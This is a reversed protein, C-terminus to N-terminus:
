SYLCQALIKSAMKRGVDGLAQSDLLQQIIREELHMAKLFAISAQPEESLKQLLIEIAFNRDLTILAKTAKYGLVFALEEDTYSRIEEARNAIQLAAAEEKYAAVLLPTEQKLTADLISLWKAKEETLKQTNAASAYEDNFGFIFTASSLNLLTFVLFSKFAQMNPSLGQAPMNRDIALYIGAGLLSKCFKAVQMKFGADPYKAEKHNKIGEAIAALAPEDKELAIKLAKADEIMGNDAWTEIGKNLVGYLAIAPGYIISATRLDKGLIEAINNKNETIGTLVAYKGVLRMCVGFLRVVSDAQFIGTRPLGYFYSNDPRTTAMTIELEAKQKELATLNLAPNNLLAQANNAIDWAIQEHDARETLAWYSMLRTIFSMEAMFPLAKSAKEFGISKERTFLLDYLGLLTRGGSMYLQLPRRKARTRNNLYHFFSHDAKYTNNALTANYFSYGQEILWSDSNNFSPEMGDALTIPPFHSQVTPAQLNNIINDARRPSGTLAIMAHALARKTEKFIAGLDEKAAANHLRNWQKQQAELLKAAMPAPDFGENIRASFIDWGHDLEKYLWTHSNGTLQELLHTATYAIFLSQWCILLSSKADILQNNPNSHSLVSIFLLPAQGPASFCLPPCTGWENFALFDNTFHSKPPIQPSLDDKVLAIAQAYAPLPGFLLILTIFIGGTIIKTKM